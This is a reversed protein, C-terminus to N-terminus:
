RRRASDRAAAARPASREGARSSPPAPSSDEGLPLREAVPLQTLALQIAQERRRRRLHGVCHAAMEGLVRGPTITYRGRPACGTARSADAIRSSSPPRRPAVAASERAPAPRARAGRARSRRARPPARARRGCRTLVNRNEHHPARARRDHLQADVHGAARGILRRRARPERRHERACRHLARARARRRLDRLVALQEAARHAAARARLAEAPSDRHRRPMGVRCELQERIDHLVRRELSCASSVSRASAIASRSISRSSMYRYGSRSSVDAAKAPCGYPTGADPVPPTARAADIRALHALPMARAHELPRAHDRHHAIDIRVLDRREHSRAERLQAPALLRRTAAGSHGRAGSAIASDRSFACLASASAKGDGERVRRHASRRRDARRRPSRARRVIRRDAARCAIARTCPSRRRPRTASHPFTRRTCRSTAPSPPSRARPAARRTRSAARPAPSPPPARRLRLLVRDARM